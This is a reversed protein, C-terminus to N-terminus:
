YLNTLKSVQSLQVLKRVKWSHNIIAWTIGREALPTLNLVPKVGTYAIERLRHLETIADMEGIVEIMRGPLQANRCTIVQHAYEFIRDLIDPM